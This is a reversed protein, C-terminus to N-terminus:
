KEEPRNSLKGPDFLAEADRKAREGPSLPEAEKESEAADDGFLAALEAKAREGKVDRQEAHANPRPSYYTCYNANTKDLVKDAKDHDCDGIYRTNYHRCMRCAHLDARCTPCRMSSRIPRPMDKLSGGCQWCVLDGKM